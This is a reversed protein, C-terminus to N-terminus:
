QLILRFLNGQELRIITTIFLFENRYVEPGLYSTAQNSKDKNAIHTM